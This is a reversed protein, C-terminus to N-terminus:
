DKLIKRIQKYNPYYKEVVRWFNASHNFELLHSLEHVIVYDLCKKDYELLRTNLTITKSKRNCVGWRTKMTRFKLSYYPIDEEFQQYYYQYRELFLDQMQRKYWKQFEKESKTFIKSDEVEVKSFLNSIILDYAKGLYYIKEKRTQVQKQKELAKRLFKQNSDLLRLIQGKTTFYSATVYITNNDKVRIYINKNNKRVIEVVYNKGDLTYSM